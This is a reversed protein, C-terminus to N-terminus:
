RGKTLASNITGMAKLSNRVCSANAISAITVAIFAIAVVYTKM